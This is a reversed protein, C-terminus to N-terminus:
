SLCFDCKLCIFWEVFIDSVVWGSFDIRISSSSLPMGILRSEM